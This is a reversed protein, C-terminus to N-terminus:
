GSGVTKYKKLFKLVNLTKLRMNYLLDNSKFFIKFHMIKIFPHFDAYVDTRSIVVHYDPNIFLLQKYNSIIKINLKEKM